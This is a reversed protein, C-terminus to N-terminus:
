DKLSHSASRPSSPKAVYDLVKYTFGIAALIALGTKQRGTLVPMECMRHELHWSSEGRYRAPPWGVAPPEKQNSKKVALFLLM